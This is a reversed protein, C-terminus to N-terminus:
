SRRSPHEGVDLSDEFVECGLLESVALMESLAKGDLPPRSRYAKWEERSPWRAIAVMVGPEDSRALLSGRAGAGAVAAETVRAWAERFREEKAPEVRFRYLVHIGSGVRPPSPEAAPVETVQLLQEDLIREFFGVDRRRQAALWDRELALLVREAAGGDGSEGAAALAPWPLALLAIALASTPGLV